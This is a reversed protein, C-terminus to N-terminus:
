SPFIILLEIARNSARAEVGESTSSARTMLRTINLAMVYVIIIVVVIFFNLLGYAYLALVVLSYAIALILVIIWMRRITM